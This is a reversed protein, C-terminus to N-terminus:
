RSFIKIQSNFGDPKSSDLTVNDLISISIEKFMNVAFSKLGKGVKEIDDSEIEAIFRNPKFKIDKHPFILECNNVKDELEKMVSDILHSLLFSGAYIDQTKRAQSIFSQVPGITFLFLYKSM